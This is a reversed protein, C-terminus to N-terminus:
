PEGGLGAFSCRPPAAAAATAVREAGPGGAKSARSAGAAEVPSPFFFFSRSAAHFLFFFALGPGNTSEGAPPPPFFFAARNSPVSSKPRLRPRLPPQALKEVSAAEPPPSPESSRKAQLPKIKIKIKQVRGGSLRVFLQNRPRLFLNVSCPRPRRRRASFASKRQLGRCGRKGEEWCLLRKHNQTQKKKDTEAFGLLLWRSSLANSALPYGHPSKNLGEDQRAGGWSCEGLRPGNAPPELLNM